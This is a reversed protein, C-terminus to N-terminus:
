IDWSSDWSSSSEKMKVINANTASVYEYQTVMCDEGNATGVGCQYVYEPRDYADFATYTKMYESFITKLQERNTPM